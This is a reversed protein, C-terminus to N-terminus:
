GLSILSSKSLTEVVSQIDREAVDKALQFSDQYLTRIEELSTKGDCSLFIFAASQNLRHTLNTLPDFIVVEGELEEITLDHRGCPRLGDEM